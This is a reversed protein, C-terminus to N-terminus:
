LAKKFRWQKLLTYQRPLNFFFFLGLSVSFIKNKKKKIAVTLLFKSFGGVFMELFLIISLCSAPTGLLECFFIFNSITMKSSEMECFQIKPM